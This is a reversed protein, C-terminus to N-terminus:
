ANLYQSTGEITNLSSKKLLDEVMERLSDDDMTLDADEPLNAMIESCNTRWHKYLNPKQRFILGCLDCFYGGAVSPQDAHSTGNHVSLHKPMHAALVNVACAQCTVHRKSSRRSDELVDPNM